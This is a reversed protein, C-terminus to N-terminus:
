ANVLEELERMVELQRSVVGRARDLYGADMNFKAVLQRLLEEQRPELKGHATAIGLGELLLVRRAAPRHFVTAVKDISFVPIADERELAEYDLGMEMAMYQLMYREQDDITEDNVMAIQKAFALFTTKEDKELKHLFM